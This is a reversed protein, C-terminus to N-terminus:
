GVLHAVHVQVAVITGRWSLRGSSRRIVAAHLRWSWLLLWVLGVLATVIVVITTSRANATAEVVVAERVKVLTARVVVATAVVWASAEAGVRRGFVVNHEVLPASGDGVPALRESRIM